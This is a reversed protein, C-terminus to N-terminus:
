INEFNESFNYYKLIQKFNECFIGLKNEFNKM